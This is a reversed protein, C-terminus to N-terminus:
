RAWTSAPDAGDGIVLKPLRAAIAEVLRDAVDGVAVIVSLAM